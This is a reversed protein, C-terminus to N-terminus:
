LVTFFTKKGRQRIKTNKNKSSESETERQTDGIYLVNAEEWGFCTVNKRILVVSYTTIRLEIGAKM